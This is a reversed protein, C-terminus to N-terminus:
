LIVNKVGKNGSSFHHCIRTRREPRYSEGLLIQELGHLGQIIQGLRDIQQVLPEVLPGAESGPSRGHSPDLLLALLFRFYPFAPLLSGAGRPTECPWPSSHRQFQASEKGSNEFRAARDHSCPEDVPRAAEVMQRLHGGTSQPDHSRVLREELMELAHRWCGGLLMLQISM